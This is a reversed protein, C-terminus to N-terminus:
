SMERRTILCVKSKGKLNIGIFRSPWLGTGFFIIRAPRPDLSGTYKRVRPEARERACRIEKQVFTELIWSGLHLVNKLLVEVLICSFLLIM